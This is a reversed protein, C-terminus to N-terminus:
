LDSVHPRDLDTSSTWETQAPTQQEIDEDDDHVFIHLLSGAQLRNAGSLPSIQNEIHLNCQVTHWPKCLTQLEAEVLIRLGTVGHTHYAAEERTYGDRHTTIFRLTPVRDQPPVHLSSLLEVIAIIKWPADFQPTVLHIHNCSGSNKPFGGM